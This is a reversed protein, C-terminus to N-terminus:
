DSWVSGVDYSRGFSTSLLATAIMDQVRSERKYYRCVGRITLCELIMRGVRRV